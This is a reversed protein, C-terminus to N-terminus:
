TKKEKMRVIVSHRDTFLADTVHTDWVHKFREPYQRVLAIYVEEPGFPIDVTRDHNM